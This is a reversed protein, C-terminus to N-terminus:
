ARSVPLTTSHPTRVQLKPQGDRLRQKREARHAIQRWLWKAYPNLSPIQLYAKLFAVRDGLSWQQAESFLCYLDRLARLPRLPRRRAKELDIVCVAFGGDAKARTFIHKPFFCGHQIGHDHIQRLLGAVAGLYTHRIAREPAGDRLWAESQAEASVYGTLAETVLIAQEGHEGKRRAFYVPTTTPIGLRQFHQIRRFERAFTPEGRWPHRWSPAQHNEQRKIFVERSDGEPSHLTHRAVGSWGGRRQNPPEFWEPAAQWWADFSGLKNHELTARWAPNLYDAMAEAPLACCM